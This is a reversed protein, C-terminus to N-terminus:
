ASVRALSVYNDFNSSVISPGTVSTSAQVRLTDGAVCSVIDSVTGKL